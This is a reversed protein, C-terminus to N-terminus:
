STDEALGTGFLAGMGASVAESFGRGLLPGGYLCTRQRSRRKQWGRVKELRAQQRQRRAPRDPAQRQLQVSAEQCYLLQKRKRHMPHAPLPRENKSSRSTPPSTRSRIVQSPVADKCRCSVGIDKNGGIKRGTGKLWPLLELIRSGM